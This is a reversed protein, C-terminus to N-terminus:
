IHILSLRLPHTLRKPDYELQVAAMGKGCVKGKTVFNGPIGEVKVVRGDEVLVNVPCYRGFMRCITDVADM